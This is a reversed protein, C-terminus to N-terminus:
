ISVGRLQRCMFAVGAFPAGRRARGEFANLPLDLGVDQHLVFRNHLVLLGFGAIYKTGLAVGARQTIGRHDGGVLALRGTCPPPEKEFLRQKADRRQKDFCEGPKCPKEHHPEQREQDGGYRLTPKSFVECLVMVGHRVVAM